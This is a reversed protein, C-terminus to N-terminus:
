VSVTPSSFISRLWFFRPDASTAKTATQNCRGSTLAASVEIVRSPCAILPLVGLYPLKALPISLTSALKVPKLSKHSASPDECISTMEM